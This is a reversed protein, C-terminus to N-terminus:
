REMQLTLDGLLAPLFSSLRCNLAAPCRRSRLIRCLRAESLASDATAALLSSARACVCLLLLHRAGDWKGHVAGIPPRSEDNSRAYFPRRLLSISSRPARTQFAENIVSVLFFADSERKLYTTSYSTCYLSTIM